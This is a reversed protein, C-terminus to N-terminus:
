QLGFEDELLAVERKLSRAVHSHVHLLPCDLREEAWGKRRVLLVRACGREKRLRHSGVLL